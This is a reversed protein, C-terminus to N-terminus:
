FPSYKEGQRPPEPEIGTWDMHCKQHFFHFHPMNKEWYQM